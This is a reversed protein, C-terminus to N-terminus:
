NGQMNFNEDTEENSNEGYAENRAIIIRGSGGVDAASSSGSLDCYDEDLTCPILDYTENTEMVADTEESSHEGYAENRAIIIRGSSGVDAASSSGSLDCYDEDLTCPILGYAENTEMVVDSIMGDIGTRKDVIQYDNNEPLHTPYDYIPYSATISLTEKSRTCKFLICLAVISFPIALLGLTGAVSGVIVPIFSVSKTPSPISITTADDIDETAPEPIFSITPTTTTISEAMILNVSVAQDTGTVSCTYNGADSPELSFITLTSVRSPVLEITRNVAQEPAGDSFTIQYKEMGGTIRRGGPGDWILSSDPQIFARMECSLEVSSDNISPIVTSSNTQLEVANCFNASM